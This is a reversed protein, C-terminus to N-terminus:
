QLEGVSHIAHRTMMGAAANCLSSVMGAAIGAALARSHGAPVTATEARGFIILLVGGIVLAIGGYERPVLRETGLLFGLLASWVPSLQNMAIAPQAGLRRLAEFLFVDGIALGLAGSALLVLGDKTVMAAFADGGHLVLSTAWFFVLAVTCRFLNFVRPGYRVIAGKVLVTSMAWSASAGLAVAVGILPETM